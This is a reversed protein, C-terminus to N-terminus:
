VNDGGTDGGMMRRILEMAERSASGKILDHLRRLDAIIFNKNWLRDRDRGELERIRDHLGKIEELVAKPLLTLFDQERGELEEIIDLAAEAHDRAWQM